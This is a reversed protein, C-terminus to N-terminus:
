VDWDKAGDQTDLTSPADGMNTSAPRDKWTVALEQWDALIGDAFIQYDIAGSADQQVLRLTAKAVTAGAPLAGLDHQVLAHSECLQEEILVYTLGVTLASTAGFNSSSACEEITSDEIADLVLTAAIAAPAMGAHGVGLDVPAAHLVPHASGVTGPGSGPSAEDHHMLVLSPSEAGAPLGSLLQISSWSSSDPGRSAYALRRDDNTRWDGDRDFTWALAAAGDKRAVSVQANMGVPGLLEPAGWRNSTGDWEATAIRWDTNSQLNLDAYRVWTLTGGSADGALAARGDPLADNTLRLPESWSDGAWTAYFLEQRALHLALNDGAAEAEGKSMTNETWVVVPTGNEGVFAAVPDMVAHKGDTLPSPPLWRGQRTSLRAMVIPVASEGDPNADAVYVALMRGDDGSVISPGAMVRLDLVLPRPEIAQGGPGSTTTCGFQENLLQFTEELRVAFQVWATLQLSIRLCPSLLRVPASTDETNVGVPLSLFTAAAVDAGGGVVGLVDLWVSVTPRPRVTASFTADVAPALPRLTMSLRIDGVVNVRLSANVAYVGWLRVITGRFVETQQAFPLTFPGFDFGARRVDDPERVVRPMGPPILHQGINFPQSFLQGSAGVRTVRLEITGNLSMTGELQLDADVTNVLRGFFPLVPPPAPFTVPLSGPLNFLRASFFYQSGTWIVYGSGRQVLPDETPDPLVVVTRPTLCNEDSVWNGEVVPTVLLRWEGPALLSVNYAARYHYPDDQAVVLEVQDAASGRPPVLTFEVRSLTRGSVVQLDASFTVMVRSSDSGLSLYTGFVEPSPHGDYDASVNTVRAGYASPCGTVLFGLDLDTDPEVNILTPNTLVPVEGTVGGSYTGPPVVPAEFMGDPGIPRSEVRNGNGDYLDFTADVDHPAALAAVTPTLPIQGRVSGPPAAEVTFDACAFEAQETGTVTACVQAPGVEAEAPVAITGSYANSPQREVVTATRTADGTLWALRVGPYPAVGQGSVTVSQGAYGSSSSLQITPRVGDIPAPISEARAPASAAPPLNALGILLVFLISLVRRLQKSM